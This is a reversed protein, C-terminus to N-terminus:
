PCPLGKGKGRGQTSYIKASRQKGDASDEARSIGFDLRAAAARINRKPANGAILEGIERSARAQGLATRPHTAPRERPIAAHRRQAEWGPVRDARLIGLRYVRWQRRTASTRELLESAKNNIPKQTRNALKPAARHFRARHANDRFHATRATSVSNRTVRTRHSCPLPFVM